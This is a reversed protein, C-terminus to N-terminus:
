TARRAACTWCGISRQTAVALSSSTRATFHRARESATSRGGRSAEAGEVGLRRPQFSGVGGAIVITHTHFTTGAATRVFFRQANEQSSRYSGPRSPVDCQVAQDATDASRRAGPRRVGATRSHRLDAQGPLAGRMARGSPRTLGRHQASIGLLGLEFVQFLGCPGAGVIM